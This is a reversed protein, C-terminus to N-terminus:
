KQLVHAFKYFHDLDSTADFGFWFTVHCLSMEFSIKYRTQDSDLKLVHKHFNTLSIKLIDENEETLNASSLIQISLPEKVGNNNTMYFSNSLLSELLREVTGAGSLVSSAIPFLITDFQDNLAKADGLSFVINPGFLQPEMNIKNVLTPRRQSRGFDFDIDHEMSAQEFMGGRENRPFYDEPPKIKFLKMWDSIKTMYKNKSDLSDNIPDNNNYRYLFLQSLDFTSGEDRKNM